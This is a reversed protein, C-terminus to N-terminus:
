YIGPVTFVIVIICDDPGIEVFEIWILLKDLYSGPSSNKVGIFGPNIVYSDASEVDALGGCLPTSRSGFLNSHDRSVPVLAPYISFLM